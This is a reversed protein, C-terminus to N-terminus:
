ATRRLREMAERMASRDVHTYIQTTALNAHRLLSQIVRTDTGEALLRTAFGHRLSHATGPVRARQMAKSVMASVSHGHVHGSSDRSPFWWGRAPMTKAIAEIEEHLPLSAVTGGKGHVTITGAMVDVDEGRLCAIESVRLGQYAALMIMVRTRSHMRQSLLRPLHQEAVARAERRPRRPARVRVMPDDLRYEQKVLWGFWSALNARHTQRTGVSWLPRREGNYSAMWDIITTADATEPDGAEATFRRMLHMRAEVTRPSMGSARMWTRWEIVRQPLGSDESQM